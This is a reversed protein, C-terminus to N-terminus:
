HPGPLTGQSPWPGALLHPQGDSKIGPSSDLAAKSKNSKERGKSRYKDHMCFYMYFMYEPKLSIILHTDACM